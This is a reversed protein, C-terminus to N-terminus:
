ALSIVLAFVLQMENMMQIGVCAVVSKINAGLDFYALRHVDFLLYTLTLQFHFHEIRKSYLIRIEDKQIENEIQNGTALCLLLPFGNFHKVSRNNFNVKNCKYSLHAYLVRM